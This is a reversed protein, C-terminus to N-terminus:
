VAQENRRVIVIGFEAGQAVFVVDQQDIVFDHASKAAGTFPKGGLVIANTRVNHGAGFAQGTPIKGEADHDNGVGDRFIELGVHKPSSESITTVRNTTGCRYGIQM